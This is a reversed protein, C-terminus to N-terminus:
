GLWRHLARVTSEETWGCSACRVSVGDVVDLLRVAREDKALFSVALEGRIEAAAMPERFFEGRVEFDGCMACQRASVVPAPRPSMPHRGYLNGVISVVDSRYTACSASSDIAEERLNLWMTLLAVLARAGEPTTNARFGQVEVQNSWAVLGASPAAVKLEESWFMVWNLVQAFAEDADDVWGTVLPTSEQSVHGGRESRLTTDVCERVYGVLDPLSSLARRTKIRLLKAAEQEETVQNEAADIL